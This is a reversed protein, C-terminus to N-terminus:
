CAFLFTCKQLSKFYFFSLAEGDATKKKQSGSVKPKGCEARRGFNVSGRLLLQM